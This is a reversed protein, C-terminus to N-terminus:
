QTGKRPRGRSKITSELSYKTIMKERWGGEGYPSGRRISNRIEEIEEKDQPDNLIDAYNPVVIPWESLIKKQNLIHSNGREIITIAGKKKAAKVGRLINESKGSSSIAVLTDKPGAFMEVPKEFVYPYGYDNGICTLLSSDNFAMAKIGGNKWFDVAMHSSIAASGGNGIFLVKGGGKARKLIMNVAATLAKGVGATEGRPGTATVKGFLRSLVSFYKEM